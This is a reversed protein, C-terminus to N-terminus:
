IKQGILCILCKQLKTLNAKYIYAIEIVIWDGIM